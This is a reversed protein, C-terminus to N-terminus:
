LCSSRPGVYQYERLAQMAWPVVMKVSCVDGPVDELWAEERAETM